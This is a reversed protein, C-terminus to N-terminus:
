GKLKLSKEKLENIWDQLIELRHPCGDGDCYGPKKLGDDEKFGDCDRNCNGGLGNSDCRCMHDPYNNSPM